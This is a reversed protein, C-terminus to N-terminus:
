RRCRGSSSARSVDRRARRRAPRHRALRAAEVDPLQAAPADLLHLRAPRIRLHVRHRQRPPRRPRRDRRARRRAGAARAGGGRRRQVSLLRRRPESLRPAPRRRYSLRRSDFGRCRLASEAHEAHKSRGPRVRDLAAQITGGAMLRFRSWRRRGRCSSSRSTRPSLTGDRM